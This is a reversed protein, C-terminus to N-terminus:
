GAEWAAPVAEDLYWRWFARREEELLSVMWATEYEYGDLDADTTEIPMDDGYDGALATSVVSRCAEAVIAERESLQEDQIWNEFRGSELRAQERDVRRELVDVALALMRECEPPGLSLVRRVCLLELAVLRRQDLPARLRRRDPLPLEGEPSAEV